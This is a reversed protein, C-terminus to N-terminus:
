DPKSEGPAGAYELVPRSSEAGQTDRRSLVGDFAGVLSGHELRPTADEVAYREVVRGDSTFLPLGLEVFDRIRRRVVPSFPLNVPTTRAYLEVTVNATSGYEERAITIARVGITCNAPLESLTHLTAGDTPVVRVPTSWEGVVCTIYQISFELFRFPVPGLSSAPLLM